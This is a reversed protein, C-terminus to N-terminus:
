LRIRFGPFDRNGPIVGGQDGFGSGGARQGKRAEKFAAAACRDPSM